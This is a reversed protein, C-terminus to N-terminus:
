SVVKSQVLFRGGEGAARTFAYIGKESHDFLRASGHDSAVLWMPDEGTLFM